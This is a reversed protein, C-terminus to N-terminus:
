ICTGLLTLPHHFDSLRIKCSNTCPQSYVEEVTLLHQAAERMTAMNRGGGGKPNIIPEVQM